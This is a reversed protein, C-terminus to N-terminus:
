YAREGGDNRSRAIMPNGHGRLQAREWAEIETLRWYRRGNVVMPRPFGLNGRALWRSLSRSTITYHEWVQRAPLLREQTGFTPTRTPELHDM